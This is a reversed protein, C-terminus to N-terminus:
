KGEAGQRRRRGGLLLAVRANDDDRVGVAEVAIKFKGVAVDQHVAAVEGVEAGHRFHM